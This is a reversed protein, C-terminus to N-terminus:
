WSRSRNSEQWLKRATYIVMIM